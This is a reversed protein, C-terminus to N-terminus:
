HLNAFRGITRLDEKTAPVYVGDRTQERARLRGEISNKLSKNSIASVPQKENFNIIDAMATDATASDGNITAQTWRNLLKQRRHNINFEHNKIANAGSYMESVNSPTFGLAQGFIEMVGLNDILTDEQWNKVGDRSYRVAKMGDKVFKPMMMEVGRWVDGDDAMTSIGMFLNSANTAVPGLLLNVYQNFKDKGEAEREPSRLWLDGLSVRSSIDLDGLGPIARWPGKSLAEAFGAGTKDALLNRLEVEIDKPDDDDGFASLLFQAVAMLGGLVPMGSMGAVLFHGGLIMGLRQAAAKKVEPSEGKIAQQLSRALLWTMQQSYQKFLFLVRRVNGEMWRARNAQSYDFHSELIVERTEKIADEKDMGNKLALRYAALATIKRNALEAVHFPWSVARMVKLATSGHKSKALNLFDNGAAQALSHAGTVDITGDDILRAIMDREHQPLKKNDILSPGSEIRPKSTFYDSSAKSLERAASISGTKKFRTSLIPFAVLPTQTLNVLASAISPGINWLFGGATIAQTIPSIDPNNYIKMRASLENYLDTVDDNEEDKELMKSEQLLAAVTADMKDAHRIRAIHHAAHQMNDAFARMQDRSYGEVNQRHVFHKRHSLDPLAKIFHQNVQDKLAELQSGPIGKANDLIEFIGEVFPQSAGATERNFERKTKAQVDWGERRRRRIYRTREAMSDFTRVERRGGKEAITIYEGFRSLPFYPGNELYRDYKIRIADLTDKRLRPDSIQRTIRDELASFLDNLNDIYQKKVAQYVDKAEQSLARYRPALENYQGFRKIENEIKDAQDKIKLELRNKEAALKEMDGAGKMEEKIEAIRAAKEEISKKLAKTNARPEFEDVDPNVGGVTAKIMLESMDRAAKKPLSVWKNYVEDARTMIKKADSDMLRTAQYFQEMQPFKKAFVDRLQRLTLAGLSKRATAKPLSRFWDWAKTAIAADDTNVVDEGERAMTKFYETELAEKFGGEKAMTRIIDAQERGIVDEASRMSFRVDNNTSSFEGSNDLASKVQNPSFVVVHGRDSIIIGDYGNLEEMRKRFAQAGSAAVKRELVASTTVLPRELKVYFPHVTGDMGGAHAEAITSGGLFIGLGALESSDGRHERTQDFIWPYEKTKLFHPDRTGHFLVLPQGNKTILSKKFWSKFAPTSPANDSILGKSIESPKGGPGGTDTPGSAARVAAQAFMVLDKHNLTDPSTIGAKVLWKKFFNLLRDVISLKANAENEILYAAVESWYHEPKTDAPVRAMAAQIAEGTKGKSDKRKELSALIDQYEGDTKMGLKAAHEGLEHLLVPFAQGKAIGDRVLYTTGNLYFGQISGGKSYKVSPSQDASYGAEDLIGKVDEPSLIRNVKIAGGIIWAGGQLKSTSFRYHGGEPVQDRIDGARSEDAIKQWDRDAPIEVEVWVRDEPMSGDKKMLHPAVPLIGAHWGPRPSFGKTPIFEAQIWEGMPTPISKGIFLPFLKGPQTKLKRFLKYAKITKKPEKVEPIRSFRAPDDQSGNLIDLADQQSDLVVVAGNRLLRRSRIGGISDSMEREIDARNSEPVPQSMSMQAQSDPQAPRAGHHPAAQAALSREVENLRATKEDLEEKKAFPESAKREHEPLNAKERELAQEMQEPTPGYKVIGDIEVDPDRFMGALTVRVNPPNNPMAKEVPTQTIDQSYYTASRKGELKGVLTFIASTKVGGGGARGFKVRDEESDVEVSLEFEMGRYFFSGLKEEKMKPFKSGAQKLMAPEIKENARSAIERYLNIRRTFDQGHGSFTALFPNDDGLAEHIATEAKDASKYEVGDVTLSFKGKTEDRLKKADDFMQLAETKTAHTFTREGITVKRAAVNKDLEEQGKELTMRAAKTFLIKAPLEDIQRQSRTAADQSGWVGRQHASELRSLKQIESILKVRELQLPDGSALAAIQKMSVAEDDDFEMNFEGQYKRIGNIMKMKQSNLDWLMADVTRTTVYANIVVQFDQRYLPNHEEDILATNFLNGQRIIRGERQEIDSPKYTVDGHHLAVLRQQVNTGAGMKKTSGILVRVIGANVEEFLEAKQLDTNAEQVFRIEKEPIGRSVLNDKLQQYASWNSTQASRMEEIENRDFKELKGNLSRVKDEDGANMAANLEAVLDDYKKIEKADGKGKPIGRDLFVLQTGKDENWQSYINAVNEAIVDLKGGKEDSVIRPDVARVDLSAKKALDMLRLREASRVKLDQIGDLSEYRSIIEEIVRLQAPTAPVEVAQRGGGKVDPIPFKKGPNDEAFQAQIDENTVCDAFTYYMGMLNRMNSWERGLRTTEKLSGGTPDFEFETTTTTFQPYWADFHEIDGEALMDAGLYKMLIYMEVASNSIPTGTMFAVSGRQQERLTRIKAWLNYAKASGQRDNMGKVNLNSSYFLNKYEHAEDITLDDVGIQEFTLLRDKSRGQNRLKEMRTNLHTVMAEAKKVTLPKRFSGGEWGEDRAEEEAQALMELAIEIEAQLYRTETANDIGIFEFSSHPMIIIDYDGTAMKAFARRRKKGELDKKGMALLNAGPYLRYVDAAFQEVLHNPVVIMPKRSIGMRKREMARAIGTFTKGAGVAHDYLVFRDVIGRWIGNKQHRRMSIIADPVKGPMQLHQGSRQRNSRVNYKQNYLATLRERRDSDKMVWSEFEQRINDSMNKALLSEEENLYRSGDNDQDYIRFAKRNLLHELIVSADMRRTNWRQAKPGAAAGQVFFTNALKNFRVQASDGTLSSLFDAYISPDFWTAGLVVTVKESTWPEPLVKEMSAINVDFNESQNEDAMAERAAAIKRSVNGSLYEDASEFSGTEPNKFVLPEPRDQLDKVTEDESKGYLRAVEAMDVAGLESLVYALADEPSSFGDPTKYLPIARRTLITSMEASDKRAEIGLKKAKDKSISKTYNKELSFILAQDPLSRVTNVTSPGNTPGYKGVYNEYSQALKKRNKEVDKETSKDSSELRIQEKLLDMLDVVAGMQKFKNEGLRMNSPVESDNKFVEREKMNRNTVKGGTDIVKVPKGTEKDMVDVVRYWNWDSDMELDANWPSEPSLTRTQMMIEGSETEMDFTHILRGDKSRSVQGSQNGALAVEMGTVLADFQRQSKEQMTPPSAINEPLIKSVAQDILAGINSGAPIKVTVDNGQNQSGSRDMVGIIASPNNVFYRNVTIPEGGLPDNVTGTELWERASLPISKTSSYTDDYEKQEEKTRKQLFVIDTIVETRANEKFATQPLRIAGLFKAQHGIMTRATADKSDLMFRSVVMAQIGGPKLADIGAMFFQNHISLGNLHPSYQFHLRQGKGGFPPNGIVLDLTGSPLPLKEFGSHFVAAQPYLNKAIGATIGDFEVAMFNTAGRISEPLLGIFNGTGSSPELANGGKFGLRQVARWMSDVVEKSTYHANRSSSRATDLEDKSLLAEIENAREVWEPKVAGTGQVRFANALGGWGVYRALVRQEQPTARRGELVLTKLVKIAAVNDKYKVGESGEGLGIEDTIRFNAAPVSSKGDAVEGNGSDNGTGPGEPHLTEADDGTGRPVTDWLGTPKKNGKTGKGSGKANRTRPAPKGKAGQVGEAEVGEPAKADATSDTENVDRISQGDTPISGRTDNDDQGGENPNAKETDGQNVTTESNEVTLDGSKVDQLFRELYPRIFKGFQEHFYQMLEKLSYGVKKADNWAKVFEPKAQAYTDEDFSLGSGLRNKGGFLANLGNMASKVGDLAAIGGEKTIQGATKTPPKGAPLNSPKPAGAPKEQRTFDAMEIAKDIVEQRSYGRGPPYPRGITNRIGNENVVELVFSGDDSPSSVILFGKGRADQASGKREMDEAFKDKASLRPKAPAKPAAPKEEGGFVDDMMAALDEDSTAALEDELLSAKPGEAQEKGKGDTGGAEPQPQDQVTLDEKVTPSTLTGANEKGENVLKEVDRIQKELRADTVTGQAERKAKLDALLSELQQQTYDNSTTQSKQPIVNGGTETNGQQTEGTPEFEAMAEQRLKRIESEIEREQARYEDIKNGPFGNIKNRVDRLRRKAAEIKNSVEPSQTEGTSPLDTQTESSPTENVDVGARGPQAGGQQGAAGPADTEIDSKIDSKGKDIGSIEGDGKNTDGESKTTKDRNGIDSIEGDAIDSKGGGMEPSQGQNGPLERQGDTAERYAKKLRAQQEATYTWHDLDEETFAEPKRRIMGEMADVAEAPAPYVTRSPRTAAKGTGGAWESVGQKREAMRTFYDGQDADARQWEDKKEKVYQAALEKKTRAESFRTIMADASDYGMENAFEDPNVTGVLSFIGPFRRTIQRTTNTDYAQKMAELNIKGRKKAEAMHSYVPDASAIKDAEDRAAKIIEPPVSEDALVKDNEATQKAHKEAWAKYQKAKLEKSAKDAFKDAEEKSINGESAPVTGAAGYSENFSKKSAALPDAANVVAPAQKKNKSALYTKTSDEQQDWEAQMKRDAVNQVTAPQNGLWARRNEPTNDTDNYARLFSREAESLDSSKKNRLQNYRRTDSEQNDWESQMTRDAVNPVVQATKDVAPWLRRNTATTPAPAEPSYGAMLNDIAIRDDQEQRVTRERDQRLTMAAQDAAMSAARVLPGQNIDNALSIQADTMSRYRNELVGDIHEPTIGIKQVLDIAYPVKDFESNKIAILDRTPLNMREIQATILNRQLAAESDLNRKKAEDAAGHGGGAVIGMIAGPGAGAVGEHWVDDMAGVNKDAAQMAINQPLREGLGSQWFEQNAEKLGGLVRNLLFNKSSLTKDFIGAGAISGTVTSMAATAWLAMSEADEKLMQKAAIEKEQPPLSQDVKGMYENFKPSKKRLDDASMKEIHSGVETANDLGAQLGEAGGYIAGDIVWSAGKEALKPSLGLRSLASSLLPTAKQLQTLGAAGQGMAGIAVTGPLSQAAGLVAAHVKNMIGPADQWAMGSLEQGGPSMKGQWFQREEEGSKKISRGLSELATPQSQSPLITSQKQVMGSGDDGIMGADPSLEYSQGTPRAQRGIMELGQGASSALGGIGSRVAKLTDVVKDGTTMANVDALQQQKRADEEKGYQDVLSVIDAAPMPSTAQAQVPFQIQTPQSPTAALAAAADYSKGTDAQEAADLQKLVDLIAM